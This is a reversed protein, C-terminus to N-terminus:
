VVITQIEKERLYTIDESTIADDTIIYDLDDLRAFSALALKHFKGYDALCITEKAAHMMAQKVEIEDTTFLMLGMEFDIASVGMFYKNAHYSKIMRVADHGVLTYTGRTRKLQGGTIYLNVNEKGKLEEVIFPDTTIVTVWKNLIKALQQVTSGSDLIIIDGDTILELAGRAIREKENLNRQKRPLLPFIDNGNNKVVAGGHVRTAVSLSELRILDERITKETVKFAKSLATVEVSGQSELLKTIEELRRVRMKM